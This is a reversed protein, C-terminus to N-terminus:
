FRHFFRHLVRHFVGVRVSAGALRLVILGLIVLREHDRAALDGPFTDVESNGGAIAETKRELDNTVAGLVFFELLEGGFDGGAIDAMDFKERPEGRILKGFTEAIGAGENERAEFREADGRNLSQRGTAWHNSKSVAATAIEHAEAFIAKEEALM